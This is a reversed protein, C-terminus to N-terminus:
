NMSILRTTEVVPTSTQLKVTKVETMSGDSIEVTYQGDALQQLDFRLNASESGKRLRKTALTYGNSDILRVNVNSEKEKRINVGVKMSNAMPYVGTQFTSKPKAKEDKNDTAFSTSAAFTLAILASTFLTKM